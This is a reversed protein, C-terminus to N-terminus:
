RFFGHKTARQWPCNEKSMISHDITKILSGNCVNTTLPLLVYGRLPQTPKKQKLLNITPWTMVKVKKALRQIMEPKPAIRLKVKKFSDFSDLWYCCTILAQHDFCTTCLFFVFQSKRTKTRSFALFINSCLHKDNCVITKLSKWLKLM